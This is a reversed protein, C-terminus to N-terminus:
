FIRYSMQYKTSKQILSHHLKYLNFATGPVMKFHNADVSFTNLGQTQCYDLLKNFYSKVTQKALGLETELDSLSLEHNPAANLLSIIKLIYHSDKDLLFDKM